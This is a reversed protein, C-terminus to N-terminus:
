HRGPEWEAAADHPYQRAALRRHAPRRQRSREIPGTFPCPPSSGLAALATHAGRWTACRAAQRRALGARHRCSTTYIEVVMPAADPAGSRSPWLPSAAGITPAAPAHRDPEIQRGAGRRGPQLEAIPRAPRDPASRAHETVRIRWDAADRRTCTVWIAGATPPSLPPRGRPHAVFAAPASTRTMRECIHMSWPGCPRQADDPSESGAPSIHAWISCDPFAPSFGMDLGILM